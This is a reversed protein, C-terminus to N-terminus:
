RILLVDFTLFIVWLYPHNEKKIINDLGIYVKSQKSFYIDNKFLM